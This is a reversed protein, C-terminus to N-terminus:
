LLAAFSGGYLSTFFNWGTNNGSNTSSYANWIAGGTANIDQISLYQPNAVGSPKSITAQTGATSSNITVLNGATGSLNFNTVTQTTGATLSFTVPQTSNSITNFTNSGSITLASTNTKAVVNYTLSGGSFSSGTLSITSTGANFTMGTSTGINWTDCTWTSSGLNLARTNTNSSSLSGSVSFNATNFTGRTLTIASSSTLASGLTITGTTDITVNSITKGNTTLTGTGVFIYQGYGSGTASLTLSGSLSMSTGAYSVYSSNGTFNLSNLNVDTSFFTIDASGGIFSLNPGVTPPSLYGCVFTATSVMNRTFGGSGSATFGRMQGMALVGAGAATSTLAINGSSFAISRTNVNSSSFIGTSLTFGNLAITGIIFNFTGATTCLTPSGSLSLSINVNSFSTNLSVASAAVTITGTGSNTDINVTDASTPASAGGSGGSTASWNTTTTSDWTGAGGIWYRTAM